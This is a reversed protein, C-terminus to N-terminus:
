STNRNLTSQSEFEWNKFSINCKSWEYTVLNFNTKKISKQAFFHFIFFKLGGREIQTSARRSTLNNEDKLEEFVSM